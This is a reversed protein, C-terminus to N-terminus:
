LLRYLSTRIKSSQTVYNIESNDDDTSKPPGLDKLEKPLEFEFLGGRFPWSTMLTEPLELTFLFLDGQQEKGTIAGKFPPSSFYPNIRKETKWPIYFTLKDMTFGAPRVRIGDIEYWSKEEAKVVPILALILLFLVLAQKM